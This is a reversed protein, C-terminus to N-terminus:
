PVNDHKLGLKSCLVLYCILTICRLMFSAFLSSHPPPPPSPFSQYSLPTPLPPPPHFTARPHARIYCTTNYVPTVHRNNLIAGHCTLIFSLICGFVTSIRVDTPIYSM